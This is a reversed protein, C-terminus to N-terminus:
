RRSCSNNSDSGAVRRTRSHLTCPCEGLRPFGQGDNRSILTGTSDSTSGNPYLAILKCVSSFPHVTADPVSLRSDNGQTIQKAEIAAVPDTTSPDTALLHLFGPGPNAVMPAEGHPLELEFYPEVQSPDAPFNSSKCQESRPSSVQAHSGVCAHILFLGAFGIHGITQFHKKM